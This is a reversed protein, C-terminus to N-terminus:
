IGGIKITLSSVAGARAVEASVEAGAGHEAMASLLDGHDAVSSGAFGVLIDGVSLGGRGAPSDPEVEMVLLGSERRNSLAETVSAPLRVTRSKIGLYPRKISGKERIIGARRLALDAPVAIEHGMNRNFVQVGAFRGEADAIPGGTSGPMRDAAIQLYREVAGSRGLTLRAGVASVMSLSANVGDFPDRKLVLALDGVELSATSTEPAGTKAELRLLALDHVPDRGLLRARAKGGDPLLLGVGDDPTVHSATLASEGDILVASVAYPLRELGATYISAKRVADRLASQFELLANPM